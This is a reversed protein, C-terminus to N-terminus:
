RPGGEIYKLILSDWRDVWRTPIEDPVIKRPRVFIANTAHGFIQRVTFGEQHFVAKRDLSGVELSDRTAKQFSSPGSRKTFSAWMSRQFQLIGMGSRTGKAGITFPTLPEWPQGGEAGETQFQARYFELVSNMVAGALVPRLNAARKGLRKFRIRTKKLGIASLTVRVPM